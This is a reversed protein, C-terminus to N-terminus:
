SEFDYKDLMERVGPHLPLNKLSDRRLWKYETNEWNLQPVFRDKENIDIELVFTQYTFDTGPKQHIYPKKRMRGKPLNGLEEYSEAIATVLADELGDTDEKRAGGPIGWVGPDLVHSSRKLLLIEESEQSIILIGSAGRGWTGSSTMGIDFGKSERHLRSYLEFPIYESKM